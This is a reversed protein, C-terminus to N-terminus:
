KFACLSGLGSPASLENPDFNPPMMDAIEKGFKMEQRQQRLKAAAVAMRHQEAKRFEAADKRQEAAEVRTEKAEARKERAFGIELLRKEKRYDRLEKAARQFARDNQVQYRVYLELDTRVAVGDTGTTTQEPADVPQVLFCAQQLRVARNSQWTHRAMKLVLEDEISDAPKLDHRFQTLLNDFKQADECELVRFRGCLGHRVSNQAVAAKTEESKPGTSKKANRRNAARQKATPM